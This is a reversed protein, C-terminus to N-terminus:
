IMLSVTQHKISLLSIYQCQIFNCCFQTLPLCTQSLSHNPRCVVFPSIVLPRVLFNPSPEGDNITERESMGDRRDEREMFRGGFLKGATFVPGDMVTISYTPGHWATAATACRSSRTTAHKGVDGKACM